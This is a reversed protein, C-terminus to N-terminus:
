VGQANSVVRLAKRVTTSFLYEVPKDPSLWTYGRPKRDIEAEAITFSNNINTISHRFRGLRRGIKANPLYEHEPLEWFGALKRESDPRRWFLLKDNRRIVLLLRELRIQRTTRRIPLKNQTGEARAKCMEAVPCLLCQPNRPLCIAAGLEMIAENFDGPRSRDLRAEADIAINDMSNNLRSIVRIVNGDVAAHPLGFAISAVAAATYDGVGPLNRISPYDEPFIGNMQVAARQLNRARSYYGLGSWAQLLDHDSAAALSGITPFKQLFREFYPIATSVRTQQLM